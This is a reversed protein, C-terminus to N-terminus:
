QITREKILSNLEKTAEEFLVKAHELDKKQEEINQRKAEVQKKLTNKEQMRLNYNVADETRKFVSGLSKISDYLDELEDQSKKVLEERTRIEEKIKEIYSKLSSIEEDDYYDNNYTM